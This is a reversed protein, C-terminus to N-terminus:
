GAKAAATGKHGGQKLYPAPIPGKGPTARQAGVQSSQISKNPFIGTGVPHKFLTHTHQLAIQSQVM